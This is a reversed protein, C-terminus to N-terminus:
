TLRAQGGYHVGAVCLMRVLMVSHFFVVKMCIIRGAASPNQTAMMTESEARSSAPQTARPSFSFSLSSPAAKANAVSEAASRSAKLDLSFGSAIRSLTMRSRALMKQKTESM